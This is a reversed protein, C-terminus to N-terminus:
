LSYLTKMEASYDGSETYIYLPDTITMEEGGGKTAQVVVLQAEAGVRSHVCRLMKPELNRRKLSHILHALRSARYILYIRGGNKLLYFSADLIDELSGFLEHRAVAKQNHPNVRGTGPTGFPPNTVVVDYTEAFFSRRVDRVDLERIDIRSLLGNLLINRQALLALEPQVEIGDIREVDALRSVVIPIVGCGTGIDMLRERKGVVVHRALIVADMSFRYGTKKQLFFFQGDFLADLTEDPGPIPLGNEDTTGRNMSTDKM